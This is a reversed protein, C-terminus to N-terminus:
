KKQPWRVFFGDAWVIDEDFEEPEFSTISYSDSSSRGNRGPSRIAMVHQALVDERNLFYEFPNGWGDKEPVKQMYQPLLVEQLEESSLSPYDDLDM